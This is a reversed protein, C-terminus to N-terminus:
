GTVVYLVQYACILAYLKVSSKMQYAMLPAQFPYYGHLHNEYIELVKTLVTGRLTERQDVIKKRTSGDCSGEGIGETPVSLPAELEIGLFECMSQAEGQLTQWALALEQGTRSGSALLTEWRTLSEDMSGLVHGLQPCVGKVGIFSPLVQEVAGIFAAPSLDAQSRLGFGGLKIPQRVVWEQYPIVPLGPISINVSFESNKDDKRPIKSFATTELVKWLIDDMTDAAAKMNSPYCLQLWYDLQQSLSLRLVTWLSQKEEDLVDCSNKAIQAIESLKKSLIHEVYKDSGM